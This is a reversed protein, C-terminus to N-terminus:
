QWVACVFVNVPAGPPLQIGVSHVFEFACM